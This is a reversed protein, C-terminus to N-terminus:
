LDEENESLAYTDGTYIFSHLDGIREYLAVHVVNTLISRDLEVKVIGLDLSEQTIEVSYTDWPGGYMTILPLMKDTMM